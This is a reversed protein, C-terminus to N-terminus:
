SSVIENRLTSTSEAVLALQIVAIARRCRLNHLLLAPLTLLSRCTENTRIQADAPEHPQIQFYDVQNASEDTADAGHLRTSALKNM